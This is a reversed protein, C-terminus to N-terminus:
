IHWKNRFERILLDAPPFSNIPVKFCSAVMVLLKNLVAHRHMIKLIAYYRQKNNIGISYATRLATFNFRKTGLKFWFVTGSRSLEKGKNSCWYCMRLKTGLIFTPWDRNLVSRQGFGKNKWDPVALRFSLSALCLVDLGITFWTRKKVRVIIKIAM